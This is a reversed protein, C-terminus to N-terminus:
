GKRGVVAQITLVKYKTCRDVSNVVQYGLRSLKQTAKPLPRMRIQTNIIDKTTPKTNEALVLVELQMLRPLLYSSTILNYITGHAMIQIVCDRRPNINNKYKLMREIDNINAYIGYRTTAEVVIM